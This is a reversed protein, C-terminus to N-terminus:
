SAFAFPHSTSAVQLISARSGVFVLFDRCEKDLTSPKGWAREKDEADEQEVGVIAEALSRTTNGTRSSTLLYRAASRRELRQGGNGSPANYGKTICVQSNLLAVENTSRPALHCMYHVHLITHKM